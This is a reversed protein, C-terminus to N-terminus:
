GVVVCRRGCRNLGCSDFDVGAFHENVSLYINARLLSDEGDCTQPYYSFVRGFILRETAEPQLVEAAPSMDPSTNRRVPRMLRMSASCPNTGPKTIVLFWPPPMLTTMRPIFLILQEVSGNYTTSPMSTDDSSKTISDTSTIFSAKM